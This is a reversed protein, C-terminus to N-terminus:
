SQSKPAKKRQRDRVKPVPLGKEPRGDLKSGRGASRRLNQLAKERYQKIAKDGASALHQAIASTAHGYFAIEKIYNLGRQNAMWHVVDMLQSDPKGPEVPPLMMVAKYAMAHAMSGTGRNEIAVGAVDKQNRFWRKIKAISVNSVAASVEFTSTQETEYRAFYLHEVHFLNKFKLALAPAAAVANVDLRLAVIIKIWTEM